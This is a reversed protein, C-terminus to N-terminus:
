ISLTDLIKIQKPRATREQNSDFGWLKYNQSFLKRERKSFKFGMNVIRLLSLKLLKHKGWNCCVVM